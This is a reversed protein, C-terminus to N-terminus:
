RARRELQERLLQNEQRLDVDRAVRMLRTKLDEVHFPKTVYDAAGMRTAAVASDITGYQTLVVVAVQPYLDRVRKLLELGNSQQLKLDTLVIDVARSELVELAEEVTNATSVKMGCSEAVEVCLQQFTQEDEVVLVSMPVALQRVAAEDSM